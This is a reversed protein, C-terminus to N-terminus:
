KGNKFRWLFEKLFGSSFESKKFFGNAGAELAKEEDDERSTLFYFPIKFGKEKLAKIFEFGDMEPMDIDSVILDPLFEELKYLAEKGNFATEVSCGEAEFISKVIESTLKSDEVVLVSISGAEAKEKTVEGVLESYPISERIIESLYLPDLIVIVNGTKIVSAGLIHRYKKLIGPVEKLILITKSYVSTISLSIREIGNNLIVFYKKEYESYGFLEGLDLIAIPEGEDMMYARDNKNFIESKEVDVIKEVNYLPIGLLYDGVGIIITEILSISVPFIMIIKTGEDKRSKIMFTGKLKEVINVVVDMGVGRGSIESVDKKTSFGPSSLAKVLDAETIEDKDEPILGEDIAKRKISEWDIGRGDDEVEIFVKGKEQYARVVITGKRSKGKKEREDPPEIGHDVANRILHVIPETLAEVIRKEVFTERGEVKLTIEKGISVSLDRVTRPLIDFVSAIPVLQFKRLSKLSVNLNIAVRNVIDKIERFNYKGEEIFALISNLELFVNELRNVVRELEDINIKTYKIVPKEQEKIHTEKKEKIKEEREEEVVKKRSEKEKVESKEKGKEIEKLFEKISDLKQLLETIIGHEIKRKGGMLELFEEEMEHARKSIESYGMMKSSGKLTHADRMLEQIIDPNEPQSELLILGKVLNEVKESAEQLFKKKFIEISFKM